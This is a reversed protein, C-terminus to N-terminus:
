YIRPEPSPPLVAAHVAAALARVVDVDGAQVLLLGAAAVRVRATDIADLVNDAGAVVRNDAVLERLAALGARHVVPSSRTVGGAPVLPALEDSISPSASWRVRSRGGYRVALTDVYHALETRSALPAGGVVLCNDGLPEGRRRRRMWGAVAIVPPGGGSDDVCAFVPPTPDPANNDRLSAWDVRLVPEGAVKVPAVSAPWRNLHQAAFGALADDRRETPAGDAQEFARRVKVEREDHWRPASRRWTDPDDLAADPHASWELLLVDSGTDLETLAKARREPFLPTPHADATSALLLQAHRRELMLPSLADDIDVPPIARAEDAVALNASFGYVRGTSRLIWRSGDARRELEEQGGTQRTRYRDSNGLAKALSPRWAEKTVALTSAVHVVTQPEGFLDGHHLRWWCLRGLLTSKGVQRPSTLLVSAWTLRGDDDHELMRTVVLRQWWFLPTGFTSEMWAVADTGYSGSCTPHPPTMLRPWVADDPVDLLDWLHEMDFRPDDPGITVPEVV